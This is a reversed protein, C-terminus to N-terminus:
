AAKQRIFFTEKVERGAYSNQLQLKLCDANVSESRARTFTRASSLASAISVSELARYFRFGNVM